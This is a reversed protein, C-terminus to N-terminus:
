EGKRQTLVRMVCFKGDMETTSRAPEAGQGPGATWGTARTKESGPVRDGNFVWGGRGEGARAGM